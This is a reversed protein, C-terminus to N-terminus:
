RLVWLAWLMPALFESKSGGSELLRILKRMESIQMNAYDADEARIEEAAIFHELHGWIVESIAGLEDRPHLSRLEDASKRRALMGELDSALQPLARSM